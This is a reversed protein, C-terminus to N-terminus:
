RRPGGPEPMGDLGPEVGLIGLRLLDRPIDERVTRPRLRLHVPEARPPLDFLPGEHVPLRDKEALPFALLRLRHHRNGLDRQGACVVHLIHQRRHARRPQCTDLRGRDAPCHASELRHLMPQLEYALQMTHAVEVVGLRGIHIGRRLRQRCERAAYM